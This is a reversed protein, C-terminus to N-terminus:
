YQFSPVKLTYRTYVLTKTWKEKVLFLAMIFTDLKEHILATQQASM